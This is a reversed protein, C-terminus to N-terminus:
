VAEALGEVDDLNNSLTYEFQKYIYKFFLPHPRNVLDLGQASKWGEQNQNRNMRPNTQVTISKFWKPSPKSKNIRIVELQDFQDLQM